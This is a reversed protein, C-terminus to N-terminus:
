GDITVYAYQYQTSGNEDGSHWRGTMVQFSGARSSHSSEKMTSTWLRTILHVPRGQWSLSGPLYQTSGNEDGSHWRGVLAQDAATEYLSASERQSPSWSGTTVQVPVDDILIKSCYYTTYGNEDGSHSRGTLVQDGPCTFRAGSAEKVTSTTALQIKVTAAMAAPAMAVAPATALAALAATVIGTTLAKKRM